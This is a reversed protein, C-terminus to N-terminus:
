LGFKASSSKRIWVSDYNTAVKLAFDRFEDMDEVDDIDFTLTADM